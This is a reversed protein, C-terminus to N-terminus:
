LTFCIVYFKTFIKKCCKSHAEIATAVVIQFRFSDDLASLKTHKKRAIFHPHRNLFEVVQLRQPVPDFPLPDNMCITIWRHKTDMLPKRQFLDYQEPYDLNTTIIISKRGYRESM